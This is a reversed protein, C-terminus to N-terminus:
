GVRREIRDLSALLLSALHSTADMMGLLGCPASTGGSLQAPEPGDLRAVIRDAKELAETLQGNLSNMYGTASAEAKAPDNMEPHGKMAMPRLMPGCYNAGSM